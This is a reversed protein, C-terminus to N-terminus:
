EKNLPQNALFLIVREALNKYADAHISEPTSLVIPKGTDCSEVINESLPITQIIQVGLEEAIMQTGGNYLIIKNKCKPCVVNSMNEVIGIIPINLRKFMNAGRRTVELAAKQPTTVLLAGTVPLNQIISLHTDGTGPPTDVVLYDLPDWAVQRLLKDIASMVMLGRWIIPSKDDTLFGMSMCKVGYNILPEILNADNVIPSQRINMMLPISPGFVDADLLGVSKKPEVIKLASSLNVATTSKGVGGKGSAVVVIQKVGKLPKQKPLGRAMIEKRKMEM